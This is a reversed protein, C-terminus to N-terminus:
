NGPATVGSAEEVVAWDAACTACTAVSGAHSESHTRLLVRSAVAAVNVRYQRERFYRQGRDVSETIVDCVAGVLSMGGSMYGVDTLVERAGGAEAAAAVAAEVAERLDQGGDMYGHRLLVDRAAEAETANAIADSVAESLDQAGPMFGAGALMEIASDAKAAMAVAQHVAECLSQAGSLLEATLLVDTVAESEAADSVAAQVAERLDQDGDMYGHDMLVDTAADIQQEAAALRAALSGLLQVRSSTEESGPQGADMLRAVDISLGDEVLVGRVLETATSLCDACLATPATASARGCFSCHVPRTTTRM